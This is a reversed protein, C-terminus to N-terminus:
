KRAPQQSELKYLQDVRDREHVVAVAVIASVALAAAAVLLALVPLM